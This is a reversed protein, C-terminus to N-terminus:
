AISYVYDTIFFCLAKYIVTLFMTKATKKHKFRWKQLFSVFIAPLRLNDALINM